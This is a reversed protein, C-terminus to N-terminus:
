IFIIKMEAISLNNAESQEFGTNKCLITYLNFSDSLSDNSLSLSCPTSSTSRDQVELLNKKLKQM